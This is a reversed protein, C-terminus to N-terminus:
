SGNNSPNSRYLQSQPTPFPSDSLGITQGEKRWESTRSIGAPAGTMRAACSSRDHTPTRPKLYATSRVQDKRTLATKRIQTRDAAANAVHNGHHQGLSTFTANEGASFSSLMPKQQQQKPRQKQRQRQEPKQNVPNGESAAAM